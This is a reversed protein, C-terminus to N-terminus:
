AAAPDHRLAAALERIADSLEAVGPAAGQLDRRRCCAEIGQAAAVARAASFHSVSGKISHTVSYLRDIDADQLASQLTAVQAEFDGLFLGIIQHLLVADGDCKAILADRDYPLPKRPQPVKVRLLDPYRHLGVM